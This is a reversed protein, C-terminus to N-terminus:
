TTQTFSSVHRDEPGSVYTYILEIIVPLFAVVSIIQGFSWGNDRDAAGISQALDQEMSRLRFIVWIQPVGWFVMSAVLLLKIPRSESLKAMRSSEGSTGFMMWVLSGLILISIFLSGGIAFVDFANRESSSLDEGQPFCMGVIVDWASPSIVADPATSIQSPGYDAVMRSLFTYMFLGWSVCVQGFRLTKRRLGSDVFCVLTAPLMTLLATTWTIEVTYGGLDAASIGFDKRVLMTVAAIQISFTFMIAVEAFVKYAAHVSLALGEEDANGLLCVGVALITGFALEM